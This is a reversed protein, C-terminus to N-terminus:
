PAPTGDAKVAFTKEVKGTSYDIERFQIAGNAQQEAVVYGYNVAGTLPAGGNGVIIEKDAAYYEFTHTHGAVLLTYPHKNMIGKSPTVGPATTAITGEHRVVFTYTTPKALEADLWAAQAADWANAAVFVFKATWAGTKSAVNVTYYPLSVGLPALMKQLFTTYNHTVGDANGPGCNSATAGTCEHNGMAPFLTGTFAQRAALYLDLQPGAQSGYPKAFLYDGTSIAFAPRPSLAEVDQWIKSVIAKPYGATDDILAPRTDGVIAFSLSDLKGGDVGIPAGGTGTTAGGAGGTGGQGTPICADNVPVCLQLPTGDAGNVHTCARGEACTGSKACDPACYTDGGFQGCREGAGCDQDTVCGACPVGSGTTSGGGGSSAAGGAGSVGSSSAQQADGGCSPCAFLLAAAGLVARFRRM